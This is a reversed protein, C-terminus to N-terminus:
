GSVLATLASKNQEAWSDFNRIAPYLKKSMKFEDQRNLIFRRNFDFMNALEEAGPFGFGAFVERPIHNYRITVGTVRSLVAAYDTAPRDDGVVGIVKGRWSNFDRFVPAVVGGLDEVAVAALRTDGQPFGFAYSGDAQKQPPTFHLFNEYYFAVHTFAAGPILRRTLTELEAKIDFHPVSLEGETAKEVPPLTSLIFDQIGAAVVAEVLNQGQEFEADFHEWFNTVGFCATCGELAKEVGAADSLDGRVVEAGAARLAAAKESEPNRTLARVSFHGDALLARAVSGGQAGTAGTVMITPKNSM